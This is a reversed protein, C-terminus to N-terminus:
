DRVVWAKGDVFIVDFNDHESEGDRTFTFPVEVAGPYKEDWAGEEAVAPELEYGGLPSEKCVRVTADADEGPTEPEYFLEVLEQCQGSVWLGLLRDVLETATELAVGPVGDASPQALPRLAESADTGGDSGCGALVLLLSTAALSRRRM